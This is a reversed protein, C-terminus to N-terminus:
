KLTPSFHMGLGLDKQTPKEALSMDGDYLCIEFELIHSDVSDWTKSRPSACESPKQHRSLVVELAPNGFSRQAEVVLCHRARNDGVEATRM